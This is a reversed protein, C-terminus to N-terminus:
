FVKMADQLQVAFYVPPIFVSFRVAYLFLYNLPTYKEFWKITLNKLNTNYYACHQELISGNNLIRLQVASWIPGHYFYNLVKIEIRYKLM